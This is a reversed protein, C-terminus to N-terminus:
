GITSVGSQSYAITMKTQADAVRVSMACLVVALVIPRGLRIWHCFGHMHSEKRDVM